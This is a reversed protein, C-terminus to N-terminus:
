GETIPRDSPGTALKAASLLLCNMFLITAQLLGRVSRTALLNNKAWIRRDLRFATRELLRKCHGRCGQSCHLLWVRISLSITFSLPASIETTSSSSDTRSDSASKSLTSPREALAKEDASSNRAASHTLSVRHKIRSMLIGPIHPGSSCCSNARRCCSIRMMKMVAGLLAATRERRSSRPATSHRNLGNGSDARRSASSVANAFLQAVM